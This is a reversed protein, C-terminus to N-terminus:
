KMRLELIKEKLYVRADKPRDVALATLLCTYVRYIKQDALYKKKDLRWAQASTIPAPPAEPSGASATNGLALTSDTRESNLQDLEISMRRPNIPVGAGCLALSPSLPRSLALLPLTQCSLKYLPVM